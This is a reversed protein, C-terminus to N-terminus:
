HVLTSASAFMLMFLLASPHQFQNIKAWKAARSTFMKTGLSFKTFGCKGAHLKNSLYQPPFISFQQNKNQSSSHLNLQASFLKNLYSLLNKPLFIWCLSLNQKKHELKDV